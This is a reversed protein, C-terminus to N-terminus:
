LQPYFKDLDRYPPIKPDNKNLEIWGDDEIDTMFEEYAKDDLSEAQSIIREKSKICELKSSYYIQNNPDVVCKWYFGPYEYVNNKFKIFYYIKKLENYENENKIDHKKCYIILEKLNKEIIIKSERYLDIIKSKMEEIGKNDYGKNFGITFYQKFNLILNEFDVDCSELLYILVKKIQEFSIKKYLNNEQEFYIPLHVHLNKDKNRGELGLKDSRLGRGICQIIDKYSTKSDCFTIYDIKDFDYGMTYMQVVYGICNKTKQFKEISKYDYDYHKHKTNFFTEIEDYKKKLDKILKQKEKIQLDIIKEYDEGFIIKVKEKDKFLTEVKFNDKFINYLDSGILLFPKVIKRKKYNNNDTLYKFHNYFMNFANIQKSHFSFGWNRKNNKFEKLTYATLNINEKEKPIAFQFPVVNCLWQLNILEKVSIPNYLEGYIKSNDKVLQKNPSASVFFRYKIITSDELWFQRHKEKKYKDNNEETDNLWEGFSWHAEDFWVFVNQINHTNILKYLKKSSQSCAVVIRKENLKFFTDLKNKSNSISLDLIQYQNNLIDLYKQSINQENIKKRPSFIIIFDPNIKALIKFVIYTKGGGTALELFIKFCNILKEYCYKIAEVQYKRKNYKYNDNNKKGETGPKNKLKLRNKYEKEKNEKCIRKEEEIFQELEKGHIINYKFHTDELENVIEEKSYRNIYWELGGNYDKDQEDQNLHYLSDEILQIHFYKEINQADIKTNCKIMLYPKLGYYPFGTKYTDLRDKINCTVGIKTASKDKLDNSSAFYVYSSM